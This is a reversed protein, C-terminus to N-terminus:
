RCVCSSEMDLKPDYPLKKAEKFKEFPATALRVIDRVYLKDRASFKDYDGEGVDGHEQEMEDWPKVLEPFDAAITLKKRLSKKHCFTCNGLHEPVTLDFDQKVWFNLVQAKTVPVLYALPYMFRQGSRVFITQGSKREKPLRQPEDARIGTAFVYYHRFIRLYANLPRQKLERTCHPALKNPIGYIACVANFIRKDRCASKFDVVKFGEGKRHRKRKPDAEIWILGLGFARDVKHAFVLTEPDELGTNMFVFLIEDFDVLALHKEAWMRKLLFAMFASTRGGSFEIILVRKRPSM